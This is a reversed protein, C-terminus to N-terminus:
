FQIASCYKFNFFKSSKILTAKCTLRDTVFVAYGAWGPLNPFRLFLTAKCNVWVPSYPHKSIASISRDKDFHFCDTCNMKIESGDTRYDATLNNVKWTKRKAINLQETRYMAKLLFISNGHCNGLLLYVKMAVVSESSLSQHNGFYRNIGLLVFLAFFYRSLSSM